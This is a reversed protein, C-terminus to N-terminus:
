SLGHKGLRNRLTQRPLKLHRAMAAQNGDFRQIAEQLVLRELEDLVEDLGRGGEFYDDLLVRFSRRERRRRVLGPGIVDGSRCLAMARELTFQLERVNGPWGHALLEDLAEPSLTVNTLGQQAAYRQLFHEAILPIDEKRERLPPLCLEVVNIRYYLDERFGAEAIRQELDRHTASILRFNTRKPTNSGVREFSREQLVRLLKIQVSAPLDGVEDIFLTGGEAAELRGERSGKAGTFSGAEHGFLESEILTEPLAALNVAVFPGDRRHSAAHIARAVLEKGTGTEGLVLVSTDTAAVKQIVDFIDRMQVSQGVIDSARQRGLLEQRLREQEAKAEQKQRQLRYRLLLEEPRGPLVIADDAGATLYALPDAGPSVLVLVIVQRNPGGLAALFDRLAEVRPEALIALRLEATPTLATVHVASLEGTKSILEALEKGRAPDADVVQCQRAEGHRPTFARACALLEEPPVPKTLYRHVVGGNIADLLDQAETFGSLVIRGAAPQMGAVRELLQIGTMGPMRQDAIVMDVRERELLALAAAGSEARLVEFERRLCRGVFELNEPEDDVALVRPRQNATAASM